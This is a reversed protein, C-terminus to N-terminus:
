NQGLPPPRPASCFPSGPLRQPGPPPPASTDDSLVARPDPSGWRWVPRTPWRGPLGGSPTLDGWPKGLGQGGGVVGSLSGLEALLPTNSHQSPSGRPPCHSARPTRGAM